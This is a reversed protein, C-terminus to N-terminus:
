TCIFNSHFCNIKIKNWMSLISIEDLQDVYYTFIRDSTFLINKDIDAGYIKANLFYDRFVRLSAGPKGYKTM